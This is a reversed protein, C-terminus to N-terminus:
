KKLLELVVSSLAIFNSCSYTRQTLFIVVEYCSSCSAVMQKWPISAPAAYKSFDKDTRERFNSVRKELTYRYM